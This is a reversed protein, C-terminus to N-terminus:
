LLDVKKVWAFDGQGFCSLFSLAVLTHKAQDKVTDLASSAITSLATIRKGLIATFVYLLFHTPENAFKNQVEHLPQQSMPYIRSLANCFTIAASRNLVTLVTLVPVAHSPAHSLNNSGTSTVCLYVLQRNPQEDGELLSVLSTGAPHRIEDDLVLLPRLKAMDSLLTFTETCQAPSSTARETLQVAICAPLKQLVEFATARLLTTAGVCRPQLLSPTPRSQKSLRMVTAGYLDSRLFRTVDSALEHAQPVVALGARYVAWPLHASTEIWARALQLTQEEQLDADADADADASLLSFLGSAVGQQLLEDIPHQPLTRARLLDKVTPCLVDVLAWKNAVNLSALFPFLPTGYAVGGRRDAAEEYRSLVLVLRVSLSSASLRELVDLTFETEARSRCCAIVLWSSEADLSTLFQM